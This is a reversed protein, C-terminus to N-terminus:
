VAKNKNRKHRIQKYILFAVVLLICLTGVVIYSYALFKNKGGFGNATSLVIFKKGKYPSVDYNNYVKMIYNGLLSEGRVRGWLKRFNSLGAPRMWVIFHENEMDMWQKSLDVNKFKKKDAPWAINTEDIEVLDGMKGDDEHYLEFGDTFVSKAILGCPIAIDEPDLPDGDWSEDALEGIDKNKVIPDCGGDKEMKKVSFSKGNLQDDNRSKVYMRHNQYFGDLEYYIMVPPKMEKDVTIDIECEEYMECQDDYRVKVEVIKNSYILLIMGFILFMIGFGVFIISTSIVTPVPRWAPLMQQKFKSNRLQELEEETPEDKKEEKKEEEEM